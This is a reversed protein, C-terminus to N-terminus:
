KIVPFASIRLRAAGMPILTIPQESTTEAVPSQPLVDCLGYKDLVWEPIIKGKAKLLIPVTQQTFPFDDKPWERTVIEFQQALPKNNLVLGYNWMSAPYIEYSPWNSQDAEPQWKSDDIASKKGDMLKYSEDIKLSFTLPGYNISVSGKNKEWTEKELTMPLQWELVDGQKWKREIRAYSGASFSISEKQGNIVLQANSCWAPVRLYLPFSIINATSIEIKIHEDFPYHTTQKLTVLSGKGTGMRATVESSNYLIAAIGNDPTAM